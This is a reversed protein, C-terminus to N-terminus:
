GRIFILILISTCVACMTCESPIHWKERKFHITRMAVYKQPASFENSKIKMWAFAPRLVIASLKTKTVVSFCLIMKATQLGSRTAYHTDCSLKIAGYTNTKQIPDWEFMENSEIDKFLENAGAFVRTKKKINEGRFFHDSICLYSSRIDWVARAACDWQQCRM